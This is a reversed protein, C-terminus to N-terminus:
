PIYSYLFSLRTLDKGTKRREENWEKERTKEREATAPSVARPFGNPSSVQRIPSFQFASIKFLQFPAYSPQESNM